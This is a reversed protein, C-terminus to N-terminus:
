FNSRGGLMKYVITSTILLVTFQAAPNKQKHKHLSVKGEVKGIEQEMM